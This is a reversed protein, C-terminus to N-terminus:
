YGREPDVRNRLPEGREFAEIQEAIQRGLAEPDSVGACHPTIVVNDLDWLPSEPPLPETEFVDLSAAKLTGDRLAEILEAENHTGGRGANVFIPGGLAGDRRLRALVSRDVLGHTEETLPLLDVLIDTGGLFATLEKRGHFM